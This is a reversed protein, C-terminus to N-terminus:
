APLITLAPWIAKWRETKERYREAQFNATRNPRVIMAGIDDLGHPAYIEFREGTPHIGVQASHMLFYDIGDTARTLKPYPVGFKEKYWLHVRAQNRLEIEADIDHFARKARRIERDESEWATDADFYFIDYDKIGHQPPYGSLTNWVTQFLAGSVLWADPFALAPLRELIMRNIPNQLVRDLFEDTNM